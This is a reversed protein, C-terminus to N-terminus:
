AWHVKCTYRVNQLNNQIYFERFLVTQSDDDMSERHLIMLSDNNMNKYTINEHNDSSTSM